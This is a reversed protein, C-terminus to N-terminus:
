ARAAPARGLAARLAGEIGPQRHEFGLERLRAPVARQSALLAEDALGRGFQLRLAFAPLRMVAPRGVARALARTFEANTVPPAVVNLAGAMEEDTLAREFAALHDAVSVWPMWQRGSGLTAGLGLRFVRVLRNLFAPTEVVVGTRARVVRVGLDEARKAETEWAECLDALFGAGRPAEEPLERDRGDGYYGTASASILVPPRPDLTALHEVLTRTSDVRSRWLVERRAASWRATAISAGSLHVVADTGQLAGDRVWGSAPHWHARPDDPEGRRVRLVEHGARALREALAGGLFGSSGTIAVLM